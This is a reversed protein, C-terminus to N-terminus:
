CMTVGDPFFNILNSEGLVVTVLLLMCNLAQSRVSFCKVYCCILVVKERRLALCALSGGTDLVLYCQIMENCFRTLHFGECNLRSYLTQGFYDQKENACM